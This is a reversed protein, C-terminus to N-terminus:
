WSRWILVSGSLCLLVLIITRFQRDDVRGYTHVGLWAGTITGPLAALLAVRVESALLGAFAHSLLAISLVVLNFAQFVGRSESRGWGRVTAWMTPLVGSLGALGGLVGGGFGIAGDAVHGGWESRGHPRRLLMYSSFLLLLLGIAFKLLWTDLRSLLATGVPIGFLAPLIFPLVRRAEISRWVWPLSQLQAVVSCVVVLSAATPPSLVYLWVAIATIGTGFGALGSVFGGALAGLTVIALHSIQM